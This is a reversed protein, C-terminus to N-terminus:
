DHSDDPQPTSQNKEQLWVVTMGAAFDHFTMSEMEASADTADDIAPPPAMQHVSLMLLATAGAVGALPVLFRRWRTIFSESVVPRTAEEREIRNRIQRWYFERTEPVKVQVENAPVLATKIAKIEAVQKQEEPRSALQEHFLAAEQQPLEGDLWAQLKLERNM